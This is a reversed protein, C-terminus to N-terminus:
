GCRRRAGTPSRSRARGWMRQLIGRRVAITYGRMHSLERRNRAGIGRAAIVRQTTISYSRSSWILLPLVAGFFVLAGAAALLMWDEFPEPLNGYLYATAGSVAILLLASWFLRRGHGRFRAILREQAPVGPQPAVPRGGLTAPQTM